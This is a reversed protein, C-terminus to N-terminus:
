GRSASESAHLAASCLLLLGEVVWSLARKTVSGKPHKQTFFVGTSLRSLMTYFLFSSEFHNIYELLIFVRHSHLFVSIHEHMLIKTLFGIHRGSSCFFLTPLFFFFWCLKITFPFTMQLSFFNNNSSHVSCFYKLRQLFHEHRPVSGKKKFLFICPLSQM